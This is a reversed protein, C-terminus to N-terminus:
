ESKELEGGVNFGHLPRHYSGDEEKVLEGQAVKRTLTSSISARKSPDIEAIVGDAILRECVQGSTLREGGQFLSSLLSSWPITKPIEYAVSQLAMVLANPAQNLQRELIAITRELTDIDRQRDEIEARSAKIQERLVQISDEITGTTM